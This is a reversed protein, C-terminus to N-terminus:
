RIYPWIFDDASGTTSWIVEWSVFNWEEQSSKRQFHLISGSGRGQTIYYVSASTESYELVRIKECDILMTYEKYANEFQDVYKKTLIECKVVSGGWYLLVILILFLLIFTTYKKM